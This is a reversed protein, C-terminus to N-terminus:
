LFPFIFLPHSFFFFLLPFLFLPHSLLLLPYFLPFLSSSFPLSASLLPLFSFSLPLSSSFLPPLSFSLSFLILSSSFFITGRPTNKNEISMILFIGFTNVICHPRISIHIIIYVAM